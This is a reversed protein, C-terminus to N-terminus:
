PRKLVANEMRPTSTMSTAEGSKVEDSISSSVNPSMPAILNKNLILDKENFKNVKSKLNGENNISFINNKHNPIYSVLNRGAEPSVSAHKSFVRHSSNFGMNKAQHERLMQM